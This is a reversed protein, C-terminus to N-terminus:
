SELEKTFSCKTNRGMDKAKYMALDARRMLDKAEQGDEPYHSIGISVGIQTRKGELTFPQTLAHIIRDSLQEAIQIGQEHEILVLFEDGGLRGLMDNSRMLKKLRAAVLCLLQDGVQHGLQDNVEKFHDLDMFLVSVQREHRKAAVLVKDLHNELHQRNPLGTLSDHTAQHRISRENEKQESIDNFIHILRQIQGESDQVASVTQLTPLPNGLADQYWIEGQWKGTEQIGQQISELQVRGSKKPHFCTFLFHNKLNRKNLGTIVMFAPNVKILRLQADTIAIAEHSSEFVSAALNIEESAAELAQAQQTAHQILPHLVRALVLSSLLLMALTTVSPWLLQHWASSYFSDTTREITLAWGPQELPAYFLISKPQQTDESIHYFPHDAAQKLLDHVSNSLPKLSLQQQNNPTLKQQSPQHILAQKALPGFRERCSLIANVEALNFFVVDQGVVQGETNHIKAKILLYAASSHSILYSKQGGQLRKYVERPNTTIGLQAIVAGDEAFRILGEVASSLSMADNLRPESYNRAETLSLEGALYSELRRRIETRSTFQEAIGQYKELLNNLVEAQAQTHILTNEELNARANQYLPIATAIGVLAGTLLVGLLAVALIRQRMSTLNLHDM